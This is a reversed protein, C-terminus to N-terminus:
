SSPSPLVDGNDVISDRNLRLSKGTYLVKVNSRQEDLLKRLSRKANARFPCNSALFGDVLHLYAELDHCCAVDANPKLYPSMKMDVRLEAGVHSYAWPNNREVMEMIRNQQGKKSNNDKDSFIGPVKTVVDQSNVVRLVKVGKSVLRDAFERNGVRPGGFSFVSVPPANPVREAIDGAALLAIAAGLSHGTVSISLEEGAYLDVLRSIEGVLSEALSPAQQSATTYLSNFGCEVKPRTPDSPDPKPEPMSVLNPRFNESWELLTATGRLAIVIERRGMRRIERPDDCVAVYGVWSTPKTMWRLDPAVDDIWKPLRVSSTAYLSKTVKFSGDPLAIDRPSGEPDSHFAHYSAQVFEGYRVIERRLNEDLPDLLGAWNNSGHLERWNSGLKNKPSREESSKSLLRQLRKLIRPSMEDVAAKMHPWIRALSLGGLLTSTSTTTKVPRSSVNNDHNDTSTTSTKLVNELNRLHERNTKRATSVSLPKTPILTSTITSCTFLKRQPHFLDTNPTLIQM